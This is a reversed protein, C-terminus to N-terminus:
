SLSCFGGVNQIHWNIIICFFVYIRINKKESVGCMSQKLKHHTRKLLMGLVHVYKTTKNNETFHEFKESTNSFTTRLIKLNRIILAYSKIVISREKQKGRDMIIDDTMDFDKHLIDRFKTRDLKVSTM